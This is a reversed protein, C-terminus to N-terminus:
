SFEVEMELLYLDSGLETGATPNIRTFEFQYTQGAIIGETALVLATLADREYFATTAPFSLDDLVKSGDDGGAWTGSVAAGEPIKRFYLKTGVTRVGGEGAAARSLLTITMNTAGAPVRVTFGVGQETTDDFARINLANNTPDVEVPALANVIWDANNPNDFHDAYFLFKPDAGGAEDQWTATTASTAKLVQGTTPPGSSEVDVDAGTTAIANATREDSLRADGTDILTADSIKGNLAALTASSHESGALGHSTPTRADSLRSDGTDILTADSIKGNLAALTSASHESGAIAHSTPTRADSLRSDGTDILTADSVKTNLAALTSASHETGALAHSTPTRADSLRSDGTDILTADSVKANLAALTSTSHETGALAHSTPARADSLRSDTTDILENWVAAGAAPDACIFVTNTSNNVWSSGVEYDQTSDDNVGPNTTATYNNKIASAGSVNTTSGDDLKRHWVGAATIILSGTPADTAVAEPDHDVTVALVGNGLDTSGTIAM